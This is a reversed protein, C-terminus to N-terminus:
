DDRLGANRCREQLRLISQKMTEIDAIFRQETGAIAKPLLSRSHEASKSALNAALLLNAREHLLFEIELYHVNEKDSDESHRKTIDELKM